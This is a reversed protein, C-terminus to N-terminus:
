QPSSGKCLDTICISSGTAAPVPIGREQMLKKLLAETEPRAVASQVGVRVLGRSYDIPM